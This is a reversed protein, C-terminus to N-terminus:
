PTNLDPFAHSPDMEGAFTRRFEQDAFRKELGDLDEVVSVATEQDDEERVMELLAQAEELGLGLGGHTFWWTSWAHWSGGWRRPGKRTM